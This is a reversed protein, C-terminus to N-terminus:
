SRKVQKQLQVTVNKEIKRMARGESISRNTSVLKFPEADSNVNTKMEIGHSIEEFKKTDFPMDETSDIEQERREFIVANPLGLPVPTTAMSSTTTSATTRTTLAVFDDEESSLLFEKEKRSRSKKLQEKESNDELENDEKSSVVPEVTTKGHNHFFNSYRLVYEEVCLSPVLRPYIIDSLCHRVNSVDM